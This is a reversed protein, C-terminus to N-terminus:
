EFFLHKRIFACLQDVAQKSQTLGYAQFVHWMEDWVSLECSNGAEQLRKAMRVSDSLLIERSGCQIMIPPLGSLQAFLPSIYQEELMGAAYMDACRKLDDACLLPDEEELAVSEGSMTLDTWPSMLALCAPLPLGTDRARLACALALGGGASEGAFAIESPAIEADLLLRYAYLADELAAPYPHEPALRYEFSLVGVGSAHALRSAIARSAKLSGAVYAGGHFYLIIRNEDTGEPYLWQAPIPMEALEKIEVDDPLRLLSCAKEQSARQQEVTAGSLYPKVLQLVKAFLKAEITQKDM